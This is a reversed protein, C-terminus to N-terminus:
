IQIEAGDISDHKLQPNWYTSFEILKGDVEEPEDVLPVTVEDRYAATFMFRLNQCLLKPLVTWKDWLDILAVVTKRITEAKMRSSVSNFLDM